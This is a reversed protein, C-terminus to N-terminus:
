VAVLWAPPARRGRCRAHPLRRVKCFHECTQLVGAFMDPVAPRWDTELWSRYAGPTSMHNPGQEQRINGASSGLGSVVATLHPCGHIM